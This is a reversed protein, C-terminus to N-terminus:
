VPLVLGVWKAARSVARVKLGFMFLATRENANAEWQVGIIVLKAVSVRGLTPTPLFAFRSLGVNLHV